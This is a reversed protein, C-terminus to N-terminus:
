LFSCFCEGLLESTYQGRPGDHGAVEPEDGLDLLSLAVTGPAAIRLVLSQPSDSRGSIPQAM